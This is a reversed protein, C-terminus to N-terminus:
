ILSSRSILGAFESKGDVHTRVDHTLDHPAIEAFDSKTLLLDRVGKAERGLM